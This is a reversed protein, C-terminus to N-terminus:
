ECLASAERLRSQTDSKSKRSRKLKVCHSYLTERERESSSASRKNVGRVTNRAFELSVCCSCESSWHCVCYHANAALLHVYGDVRTARSSHRVFPCLSLCLTFCYCSLLLLLFSLLLPSSSFFRFCPSALDSNSRFLLTLCLHRNECVRTTRHSRTHCKFNRYFM